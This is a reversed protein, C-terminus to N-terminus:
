ITDPDIWHPCDKNECAICSKQKGCPAMPVAFGGSVSDLQDETLKNKENTM